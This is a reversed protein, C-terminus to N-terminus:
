LQQNRGQKTSVRHLGVRPWISPKGYANQRETGPILCLGINTFTIVISLIFDKSKIPEFFTSFIIFVTWIFGLYFGPLAMDNFRRMYMSYYGWMLLIYLVSELTKIAYYAPLIVVSALLTRILSHTIYMGFSLVFIGITFQLRNIRGVFRLGKIYPNLFRGLFLAIIGLILAKGIYLLYDM